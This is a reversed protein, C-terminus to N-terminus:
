WNRQWQHKSQSLFIKSTSKLGVMFPSHGRLINTGVSIEGFNTLKLHHIQKKSDLKPGADKIGASQMCTSAESRLSEFPSAVEM